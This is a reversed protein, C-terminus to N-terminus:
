FVGLLSLYLDMITGGIFLSIYIGLSLYPGFALKHEKNSVKMRILHVPIAIVCGLLFAVIILKWGILFGAFFM